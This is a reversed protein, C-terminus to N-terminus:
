FRGIVSVMSGHATVSPVLRVAVPQAAATPEGPEGPENNFDTLFLLVTTTVLAAATAGGLIRETLQLKRTKDWYAQNEGGSELEKYRKYVVGETIGFGIGLAVTAGAAVWFATPKLGRPAPAEILVPAPSAAAAARSQWKQLVQAVLRRVEAAVVFIGDYLVDKSGEGRALAIRVEYEMDGIETVAVLVAQAVGLKQAVAALCAQDCDDGAKGKAQKLARRVKPGKIVGLEADGIGKTASERIIKVAQVSTAGTEQNRHKVPLLVVDAAYVPVSLLVSVALIYLSRM